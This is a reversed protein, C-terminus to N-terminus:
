VSPGSRLAEVTPNGRAERYSILKGTEEDWVRLRLSRLSTRIKLPKVERLAPTSEHAKRLRYNPILPRVHHASHFGINGTFWRLLPPLLYTSSGELSARIRDWATHRSWYVDRFQHQIYFLWFGLMGGFWLIPLQILVYTRFGIGLTALLVIALLSLNTVYVSRREPKGAGKLYFRQYFIFSFLPGVVFMMIPNRYLRYALRRGRPGEAFEKRTLTWVDGQNRRDLDGFTAHHRWHSARWKEFPTFALVGAVHGFVANARRTALFSGHACDHFLIFLRVLFLGAPLALLLVIWYPGGSRMVAIMAAWLLFYPVLTTVIQKVAVPLSRKEFRAMEAYWDSRASVTEVVGASRSM